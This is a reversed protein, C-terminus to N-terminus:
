LQASTAYRNISQQVFLKLYNLKVEEFKADSTYKSSTSIKSM